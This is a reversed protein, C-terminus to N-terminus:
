LRGLILSRPPFYSLWKKAFDQLLFPFDKLKIHEDIV